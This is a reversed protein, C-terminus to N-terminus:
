AVKNAHPNIVGCAAYIADLNTSSAVYWLKKGADWKCGIAKLEARIPYTNGSIEYRHVYHCTADDLRSGRMKINTMSQLHRRNAIAIGAATLRAKIRDGRAISKYIQKLTRTTM